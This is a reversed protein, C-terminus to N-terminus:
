RERHLPSSRNCNRQFLRAHERMSKITSNDKYILLHTTKSTQQSVETVPQYRKSKSNFIWYELPSGLNEKLKKLFIKDRSIVYFEKQNPNMGNIFTEPSFSWYDPEGSSHIPFISLKSNSEIGMGAGWYNSLGVASGLKKERIFKLTANLESTSEFHRSRMLGHIPDRDTKIQRIKKDVYRPNYIISGMLGILSILWYDKQSRSITHILLSIFIPMSAFFMLAYRINVGISSLFFVYIYFSLCSISIAILSAELNPSLILDSKNKKHRMIFITGLSTISLASAINISGYNLWYQRIATFSTSVNASIEPACQANLSSGIGWGVVVMLILVVITQKNTKQWLLLYTSPILATFVFLKNSAVGAIILAYFLVLLLKSRHNQILKITFVLFIITNLINGGHHAPTLLHGYADRASPSIALLSISFLCISLPELWNKGKPSIAEKVFYASFFLFLTSFVWAYISLLDLGGKSPFLLHLSSLILLDPFLSPIRALHIDFLNAQGQMLTKAQQIPAFSDTNTFISDILWHSLIYGGLISTLLYTINFKFGEHNLIRRM